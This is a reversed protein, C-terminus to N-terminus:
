REYEGKSDRIKVKQELVEGTDTEGVSRIMDLPEIPLREHLRIAFYGSALGIDSLFDQVCFNRDAVIVDNANITPLVAKLM